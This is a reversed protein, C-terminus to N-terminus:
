LLRSSNEGEKRKDVKQFIRRERRKESKVRPRGPPLKGEKQLTFKKGKKDWMKATFQV